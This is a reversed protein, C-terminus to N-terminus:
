AFSHGLASLIENSLLGSGGGYHQVIRCNPNHAAFAERLSDECEQPIGCGLLVLDFDTEKFLKIALESSGAGYGAWRENNNILRVVTELIEPHMGTYLINIKKM